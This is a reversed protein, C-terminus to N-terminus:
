GGAGAGYTRNNQDQAYMGMQVGYGERRIQADLQAIYAQMSRAQEADGSALAMQMLSMAEQREQQYQDAVLKSRISTLANGKDEFGSALEADFAGSGAGGSNLGEAAMREASVARRQQRNRELLQEQSQMQNKIISSNPDFNQLQGLRQLIMSRVSDAIGGGGAGGAGGGSGGPSGGGSQGPFPNSGGENYWYEGQATRADVPGRGDGFDVMDGSPGGIYKAHGGTSQNFQNVLDPLGVDSRFFGDRNSATAGGGGSRLWGIWSDETGRYNGSPAPASSPASISPVGGGGGMPLQYSPMPANQAPAPGASPSQPGRSPAPPPPTSPSTPGPQVSPNLNGNQLDALVSERDASHYDNQFRKLRGANDEGPLFDFANAM